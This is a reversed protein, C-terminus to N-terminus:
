TPLVRRLMAVYSTVRYPKLAEKDFGDQQNIAYLRHFYMTTTQIKKGELAIRSSNDIEDTDEPSDAYTYVEFTVSDLTSPEDKNQNMDNAAIRLIVYPTKEQQPCVVWYVKPKTTSLNQGVAAVFEANDKLIEIVGQIM